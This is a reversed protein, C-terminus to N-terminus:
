KVEKKGDGEVYCTFFTFVSTVVAWSSLEQKGFIM